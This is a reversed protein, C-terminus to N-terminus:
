WRRGGDEEVPVARDDVGRLVDEGGVDLGEGGEAEGELALGEQGGVSRVPLRHEAGYAHRGGEEALDSLVVDLAEGRAFGM